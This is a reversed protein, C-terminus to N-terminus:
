LWMEKANQSIAPVEKESIACFVGTINVNVYMMTVCTACSYGLQGLPITEVTQICSDELFSVNVLVVNYYYSQCSFLSCTM